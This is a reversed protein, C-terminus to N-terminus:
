EIGVVRDGPLIICSDEYENHTQDTSPHTRHLHLSTVVPEEASSIDKGCAFCALLFPVFFFMALATRSRTVTALQSPSPIYQTNHAQNPNLRYKFYTYTPLPIKEARSTPVLVDEGIWGM